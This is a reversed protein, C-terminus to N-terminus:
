IKEVIIKSICVSFYFIACFNCVNKGSALWKPRRTNDNGADTRGADPTRRGAHPTHRWDVKLTEARYSLYRNDSWKWVQRVCKNVLSRQCTQYSLNQRMLYARLSRFVSMSRILMGSTLKQALAKFNQVYTSFTSKLMFETKKINM